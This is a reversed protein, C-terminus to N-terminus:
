RTNLTSRIRQDVVTESVFQAAKDALNDKGTTHSWHSINSISQIIGVRNAVFVQFRRTSNSIYGLGVRSDSYYFRKM